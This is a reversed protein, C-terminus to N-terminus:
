EINWFKRLFDTYFKATEFYDAWFFATHKYKEEYSMEADTMNLINDVADYFAPLLLKKMEWGTYGRMAYHQRKERENKSLSFYRLHYIAAENNKFAEQIVVFVQRIDGFALPAFTITTYFDDIKIDRFVRGLINKAGCISWFKDKGLSAKDWYGVIEKYPINRSILMDTRFTITDFNKQIGAQIVAEEMFALFAMVEEM